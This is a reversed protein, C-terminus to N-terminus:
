STPTDAHITVGMGYNDLVARLYDMLDDTFEPQRRGEHEAAAFPGLFAERSKLNLGHYFAVHLGPGPFWTNDALLLVRNPGFQRLFADDEGGLALSEDYLPSPSGDETALLRPFLATGPIGDPEHWVCAVNNRIDIRLQHTLLVCAGERRYAMQFTMRHPHSFDDDDWPMCWEGTAERVAANRLAGVTPYQTPDVLIERGMDTDRETLRRGSSNVIVLERNAYTQQTFQDVARAAMRFRRPDYIPMFATVRAPILTMNSAPHEDRRGNTTRPSVTSM